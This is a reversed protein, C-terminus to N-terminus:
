GSLHGLFYTCALPWGYMAVKDPGKFCTVLMFGHIM